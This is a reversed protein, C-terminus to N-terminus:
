AWAAPCRWSDAVLCAMAEPYKYVQQVNEPGNAPPIGEPLNIGGKTAHDGAKRVCNGMIPWLYKAAKEAESVRPPPVEAPLVAARFLRLIDTVTKIVM